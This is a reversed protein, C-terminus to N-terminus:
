REYSKFVKGYVNNWDLEDALKLANKRFKLLYDKNSLLKLIAKSVDEKDYKVLIGCKRRVVDKANYSINTLVIPLGAGLYDKLKNPDAFYSFNRLVEKEPKYTAVALSSEGILRDLRNRDRIWGTFIVNKNLKLNRVLTKLVQEYEGGGIILLKADKFRKTVEVMSEIVLQVGQKEILHGIFLIQNQKIKSFPRKKIKSNWIGVPIFKQRYKNKSLKLFKQRGLAMRPSVNWVEDSYKVSIIEIQHYIFNLLKNEFRIPSFDMTYFVVRNVKGMKKLVLGSLTNLNNVGIFVDYKEKEIFVWIITQLIDLIYDVVGLNYKRLNKKEKTKIGRKFLVKSFKRSFHFPLGIYILQKAKKQNLYDRLAQPVGYVLEHTVIIYKQDLNM